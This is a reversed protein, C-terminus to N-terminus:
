ALLCAIAVTQKHMLGTSADLMHQDQLVVIWEVGVVDPVPITNPYNYWANMYLASSNGLRSVPYQDSEVLIPLRKACAAHLLLCIHCRFVCSKSARDHTTFGLSNLLQTGKFQLLQEHHSARVAFCKCWFSMHSSLFLAVNQSQRITVPLRMSQRFFARHHPCRHSSDYHNYFTHLITFTEHLPGAAVTLSCIQDLKGSKPGM